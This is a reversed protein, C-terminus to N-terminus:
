EKDNQRCFSFCHHLHNKKPQLLFPYLLRQRMLLPMQRPKQRPHRPVLQPAATAAARNTPAIRDNREWAKSNFYRLRISKLRLTYPSAQHCPLILVSAASMSAMITIGGLRPSKKMEPNRRKVRRVLTRTTGLSCASGCLHHQPVLTLTVNIRKALAEGDRRCCQSNHDLRSPVTSVLYKIM